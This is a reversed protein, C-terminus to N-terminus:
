CDRYFKSSGEYRGSLTLLYKGMYDYSVRGFFGILRERPDKWSGMGAKGESLYTGNEMDWAKLGDVSFDSNNMDFGDGNFEQWSYGGVGKLSHNGFDNEYDLQWEFTKDNNQGYSQSAYGDVGDDLSAKHMASRYYISRWQNERISIMAQTSLNEHLNVRLIANGLLDKNESGDDRLEIDAVPNYNEWGGTWVNLGHVESDDYPTRTPNLKLAQNFIGNHSFTSNTERYDFNAALEVIDDFFDFEVNLRGGTEEKTDGIAIGEQDRHIISAYVRSNETGGSVNLHHRQSFPNDVTVEDYWDTRHGYDEGLDNGLFEEASLVEPKKRITETTLEGTYTVSVPGMQGKKTTILIVGGAARTGYIAAASADKLVDISEIDERSVSNISGGPVGDIVILPNQGALVSAVGRLQVSTSANPSTGNSSQISLGPVKGQVSMLADGSLGVMLDDENMSSISSTIEKKEMSGYGVVVVEDLGTVSERMTVQFNSDGNLVIEQDEMGVFSFMLAEADESVNLSFRGDVDTITGTRTGKVQVTVGPVPYGNEDTVTGQITQEDQQNAPATQNVKEAPFIVVHKDVIRFDLESNELIESLLIDVRQKNANVDLSVIGSVQENQYFFNLKTLSEISKIVDVLSANEMKLTLRENQSYTNIASLQFATIVMLLFSLKMIRLFRNLACANQSTCIWM